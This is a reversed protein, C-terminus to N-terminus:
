VGEAEEEEMAAVGMMLVMEPERAVRPAPMVTLPVLCAAVTTGFAVAADFTAELPTTLEDTPRKVIRHTIGPASLRSTPTQLPAKM